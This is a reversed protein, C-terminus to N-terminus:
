CRGRVASPACGFQKRFARSFSGVHAYGVDFTVATVKAGGVLLENARYLRVQQLYGIVTQDFASAFGAKLRKPSLGVTDAIAAITWSEAFRMDILRRANRLKITDSTPTRLQVSEHEPAILGLAEAVVDLAIAHLILQQTGVNPHLRLAQAARTKLLQTARGIRIQPAADAFANAIDALTKSRLGLQVLWTPHIELGINCLRGSGRPTNLWVQDVGVSFLGIDGSRIRGVAGGDRTRSEWDGDICVCCYLTCNYRAEVASASDLEMDSAWFHLGEDIAVNVFTTPPRRLAPPASLRHGKLAAATGFDNLSHRRNPKVRIGM